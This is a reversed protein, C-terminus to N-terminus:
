NKLQSLWSSSDMYYDFVVNEVNDRGYALYVTSGVLYYSLGVFVFTYVQIKPMKSRDVMMRRVNFIHAISEFAYSSIGLFVGSQAFLYYDYELDNSHNYKGVSNVVVVIVIFILLGSVFFTVPKIKEPEVVFFFLM